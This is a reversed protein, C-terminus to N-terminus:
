LAALTFSAGILLNSADSGCLCGLSSSYLVFDEFGESWSLLARVSKPSAVSLLMGILLKTISYVVSGAMFDNEIIKLM